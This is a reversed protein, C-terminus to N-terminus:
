DEPPKLPYLVAATLLEAVLWVLRLLLAAIAAAGPGYPEALLTMVVFERVGLGGPLLSLFGAVMALAATATILPWDAATVVNITTQPISRLTAWLSFGLLCWGAAIIIWGFGMLRFDLGALASDIHPNLKGVRMLRVLRRFIPPLTPVGAALMLGVALLQMSRHERFMISLVLAAVFAGVAMMTLTEIFISTAAVTTDVRRGRIMSTRLVVVLAKGPFYKGLHGIYFARLSARWRPHQGMAKLTSHWFWWCPLLGAVYAVAAAVLWMPLVDALEFGRAELDAGAKVVSQWIGITVLTLVIVRFLTKALAARRKTRLARVSDM